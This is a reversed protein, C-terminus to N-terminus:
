FGIVKYLKSDFEKKFECYRQRPLLGALKVRHIYQRRKEQGGDVFVTASGTATNELHTELTGYQVVSSETYNTTSWTM